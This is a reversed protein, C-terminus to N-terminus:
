TQEAVTSIEKKRGADPEAVVEAGEGSDPYQATDPQNAGGGYACRTEYRTQTVMRRNSYCGLHYQSASEKVQTEQQNKKAGSLGPGVVRVDQHHSDRGRTFQRM